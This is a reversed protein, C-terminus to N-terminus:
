SPDALRNQASNAAELFKNVDEGFERVSDRWVLKWADPNTGRKARAVTNRADQWINRWLKKHEEVHLFALNAEAKAMAEEAIDARKVDWEGKGLPELARYYYMAAGYLDRYAGLEQPMVIKLVEIQKQLSTKLNEIEKQASTQKYVNVLTGVVAMLSAILTLPVGVIKALEGWDGLTSPKPIDLFYMIAGVASASLTIYIGVFSVILSVM